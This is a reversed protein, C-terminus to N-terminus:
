IDSDEGRLLRLCKERNETNETQKRLEQQAHEACIAFAAEAVSSDICASLMAHALVFRIESKLNDMIEQVDDEEAVAEVSEILKTREVIEQIFSDLM